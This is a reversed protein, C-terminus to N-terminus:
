ADSAGWNRGRRPERRSWWEIGEKSERVSADEECNSQAEYKTLQRARDMGQNGKQPKGPPTWQPSRVKDRSLPAKKTTKSAFPMAKEESRSETKTTQKKQNYPLRDLDSRNRRLNTTLPEHWVFKRSTILLATIEMLTGPFGKSWLLPPELSM